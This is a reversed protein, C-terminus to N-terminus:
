EESGIYLMHRALKTKEKVILPKSNKTSTNPSQM